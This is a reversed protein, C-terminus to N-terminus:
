NMSRIYEGVAHVAGRWRRGRTAVTELALANLRLASAGGLDKYARMESEAKPHLEVAGAWMDGPRSGFGAPTGKKRRNYQWESGTWWRFVPRNSGEPKALYRGPRDSPPNGDTRCNFYQTRPPKIVKAM